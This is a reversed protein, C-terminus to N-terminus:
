NRVHRLLDKSYTGLRNGQSDFVKWLESEGSGHTTIDRSIYVRSGPYKNSEQPIKGQFILERSNKSGQNVAERVLKPPNSSEQFGAKFAALRADGNSLRGALSRGGTQDKLFRSAVKPFNRVFARTGYRELVWIGAKRIVAAEPAAIVIGTAVAKEAYNLIEENSIGNWWKKLQQGASPTQAEATSGYDLVLNNGSFFYLNDSSLNLKRVSSVLIIFFGRKKIRAGLYGEQDFYEPKFSLPQNHESLALIESGVERRFNQFEATFAKLEQVTLARGTRQFARLFRFRRCPEAWPIAGDSIAHYVKADLGAPLGGYAYGQCASLNITDQFLAQAAARDHVLLVPNLVSVSLLASFTIGKFFQLM